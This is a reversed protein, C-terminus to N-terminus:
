QTLTGFGAGRHLLLDSSARDPGSRAEYRATKALQQAHIPFPSSLLALFFIVTGVDRVVKVVRGRKRRYNAYVCEV